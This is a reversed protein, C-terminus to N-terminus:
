VPVPGPQTLRHFVATSHQWLLPFMPRAAMRELDSIPRGRLSTPRGDVAEEEGAYPQGGLLLWVMHLHAQKWELIKADFRHLGAMVEAAVARDRNEVYGPAAAAVLDDLDVALREMVAEFAEWAARCARRLNRAGPSDLGTTNPPFAARMALLSLQPLAEQFQRVARLPVDAMGTARHLLRVAGVLRDEDLAAVAQCLDEHIAVWAYETVLHVIQFFRHDPHHLEAEPVLASLAATLRTDEEYNSGRDYEYRLLPNAQSPNLVRGASGPRGDRAASM